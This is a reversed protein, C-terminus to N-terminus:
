SPIDPGRLFRPASFEQHSEVVWNGFCGRIVVSDDRGREEYGWIRGGCGWDAEQCTLTHKESEHRWLNDWGGIM